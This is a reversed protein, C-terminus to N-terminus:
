HAPSAQYGGLLAQQAIEATLLWDHVDIGFPDPVVDAHGLVLPQLHSEVGKLIELLSQLRDALDALPSPPVSNGQEGHDVVGDAQQM